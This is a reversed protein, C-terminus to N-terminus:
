GPEEQWLCLAEHYESWSMDDLNSYTEPLGHIMATNIHTTEM